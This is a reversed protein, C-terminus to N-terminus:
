CWASTPGKEIISVLTFTLQADAAHHAECGATEFCSQPTFCAVAATWNSIDVQRHVILMHLPANLVTATASRTWHLVPFQIASCPMHRGKALPKAFTLPWCCQESACVLLSEWPAGKVPHLSQRCGACGELVATAPVNGLAAICSM